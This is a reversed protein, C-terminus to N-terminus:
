FFKLHRVTRQTKDIVLLLHLHTSRPFLPNSPLKCYDPYQFSQSSVSSIINTQRSVKSIFFSNYM